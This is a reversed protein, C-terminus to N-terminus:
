KRSGAVALTDVIEYLSLVHMAAGIKIAEGPMGHVISSDKDQAITFSGKEKMVKLGDAGDKGMGTLLVGAARPGFVEAVSRFLYSASPRVGNEPPDDSFVMRGGRDVGTHRGAPAFYIHGPSLTGGDEALHVQAGTSRGLWEVMEELYGEWIHQVVLISYPIDRTLRAFITQLAIPGGTSTGIAIVRVEGPLSPIERKAPAGEGPERRATRKFVKIESMLKTTEIIDAALHAFDPHDAWRPKELVALAGAELAHFTKKLEEPIYTASQIVVPVPNTEMIRRTAELGDMVPMNVDMLVIDPKEAAVAELAEAGDKAVGAVELDPDSEIIRSLLDRSVASDDVILVRIM